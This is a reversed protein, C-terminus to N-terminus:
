PLNGGLMPKSTSDSNFFIPLDGTIETLTKDQMNWEKFM